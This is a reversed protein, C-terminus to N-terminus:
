TAKRKLSPNRTSVLGAGVCVISAALFLWTVMYAASIIVFRMILQSSGFMRYTDGAFDRVTECSLAQNKQTLYNTLAQSYQSGMVLRVGSAYDCTWSAYLYLYGFFSIVLAALLGVGYLLWTQPKIVGFGVVAISLLGFAIAVFAQTGGIIYAGNGSSASLDIPFTLFAGIGAVAWAAIGLIPQWAKRIAAMTTM